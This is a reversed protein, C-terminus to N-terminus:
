EVFNALALLFQNPTVHSSPSGSSRAPASVAEHASQDTPCDPSPQPPLCMSPGPAVALTDVAANAEEEIEVDVRVRGPEASLSEVMQQCLRRLYVSFNILGPESARFSLHVHM